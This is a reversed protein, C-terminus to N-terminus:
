EYRFQFTTVYGIDLTCGRADPEAIAMRWNRVRDLAERAFRNFYRTQNAHSQETVVVVSEDVTEGAEDVEYRVTIAADGFDRRGGLPYQPRWREPDSRFELRCPVAAAAIAATQEEGTSASDLPAAALEASKDALQQVLEESDAEDVPEGARADAIDRDRAEPDQEVPRQVRSDEGTQATAVRELQGQNESSAQVGENESPQKAEGSALSATASEASEPVQLEGTPSQAM